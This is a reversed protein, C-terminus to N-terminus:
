AAQKNQLRRESHWREENIEVFDGKEYKETHKYWYEIWLTKDSGPVPDDKKGKALLVGDDVKFTLFDENDKKEKRRKVRATVDITHFNDTGYTAKIIRLKGKRNELREQAMFYFHSLLLISSVVFVIFIQVGYTNQTAQQYHQFGDRVGSVWGGLFDFSIFSNPLLLIVSSFFALIAVRFSSTELINKIDAISM